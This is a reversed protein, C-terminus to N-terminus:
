YQKGDTCCFIAHLASCVNVMKTCHIFLVDTDYKHM